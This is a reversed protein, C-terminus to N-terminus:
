SELCAVILAIITMLEIVVAASESTAASSATAEVAGSPIAIASTAVLVGAPVCLVLVVLRVSLVSPSLAMDVVLSVAFLVLVARRNLAFSSRALL